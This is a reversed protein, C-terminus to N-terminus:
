APRFPSGHQRGTLQAPAQLLAAQPHQQVVNGLFVGAKEGAAALSEAVRKANACPEAGNLEAPVAVGKLAAAAKVVPLADDPIVLAATPRHDVVLDLASATCAALLLGAGVLLLRYRVM